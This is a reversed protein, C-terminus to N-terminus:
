GKKQAYHNVAQRNRWSSEDEFKTRALVANQILTQKTKAQRLAESPDDDPVICAKGGVLFRKRGM